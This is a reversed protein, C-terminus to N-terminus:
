REEEAPEGASCGVTTSSCVAPLWRCFVLACKLAGDVALAERRLCPQEYLMAVRAGSLVTGVLAPANTEEEASPPLARAKRLFPGQAAVRGRPSLPPGDSGGFVLMQQLEPAYVATHSQRKPPPTGKVEAAKWEM